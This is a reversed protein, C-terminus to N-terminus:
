KEAGIKWIGQDRFAPLTGRKAKNLATKHEVNNMKSWDILRVIKPSSIMAIRKNLSEILLLSFQKTFDSHDNTKRYTEFAPYYDAKKTKNPIIIPPYGLDVLQKNIMVRGIRGNGDNFPHIIEFEAHFRAINSLFYEQSKTDTYQEFLNQMLGPIFDPNAGVHTGIRVWEKGQRFRGAWKDNIGKLLMQHLSLLLNRDLKADKHSLLHESIEALNKAEYIERIDHDKKITNKLLVDTTDQLTLTSNEIANSNYVMEPIEAKTIEIIAQPYTNALKKYQTFLENIKDKTRQNIM